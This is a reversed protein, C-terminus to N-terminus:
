EVKVRVTAATASTIQVLADPKPNGPQDPDWGWAFGAAAVLPAVQVMTPKRGLAHTITTTGVALDVDTVSVGTQDILANVAAELDDFGRQIRTDIASDPDSGGLNPLNVPQIVKRDRRRGAKVGSM